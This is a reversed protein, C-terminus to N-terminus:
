GLSELPRCDGMEALLVVLRRKGKSRVAAPEAGCEGQSQGRAVLAALDEFDLAKEQGIGCHSDLGQRYGAPLAGGGEFCEVPHMNREAKAKGGPSGDAIGRGSFGVLAAPLVRDASSPSSM